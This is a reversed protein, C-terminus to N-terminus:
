FTANIGITFVRALPYLGEDVGFNTPNGGGAALEPDYGPYETFTLLNQGSLYVRAEQMFIKNAVVEPLTYGLTINAVRLFSADFVYFDSAVDALTSYGFVAKPINGTGPENASHWRGRVVGDQNLNGNLNAGVAYNYYADNGYSGNMIINLDFGKFIFTNTFGFTFDPNPNGVFDEDKNDVVGDENVDRFKRDGPEPNNDQPVHNEIEENTDFIGDTVRVYFQGLPKGVVTRTYKYDIFDGASGGLATVMNRNFSINFSSNWSFPATVNVTRLALEIGKNEVEGVNEITSTFGTTSPINVDLLLGDTISKYADATFEVRNKLLGINLGINASKSTEWTIASNAFKGTRTANVLQQNAGLVYGINVINATHAYDPIDNNGSVGYSARLKFDSIFEQGQMFSEDSMRWALALSPFTGYKNNDGFRSSGDRRLTATLLYRDKFAYNIRGFYSILAWQNRTETGSEVMGAANVYPAKDSPYQTGEVGIFRYDNKQASYGVIAKLSHDNFVKDYTLLNENLWNLKQSSYASGSPISPPPAGWRGTLSSLFAHTRNSVYDIGLSTRFSLDDLIEFELFTNGLIRAQDLNYQDAKAVAVPNDVAGLTGIGTINDRQALVNTYTGDEEYPGVLPTLRLAMGVLSGRFHGETSVQENETYSPNLRLGVKIRKNVNADINSRFSYRKMSSEIIIGRNEFYGGSIAYRVKENGGTASLNYNRLTGTRLVEDQWDTVEWTAQDLYMDPVRYKGREENPTNPDGGDRLWGNNRSEIHYEAFEEAGLVDLKNSITQWGSSIDLNFKTKGVNGTKTTIIVVGNAGRSGYIATASADKLVDISEIDNPNINSLPNGGGPINGTGGSGGSLPYGDIVYLPDNGATISSNGRVRITLGSSPSGTNQFVQVGALQGKMAQEFNTVPLDKIEKNSLSSTSGTLDRKEQTGYGVVVVERLASADVDMSIDYSSGDGIQVTVNAYGIYSVTLTSAEDPVSFSFSGDLDTITGFATGTVQVAAGILPEGTEADHVKGQLTRYKVIVEVPMIENDTKSATVAIVENIQRFNLHAQTTISSLIDGLTREEITVNPKDKLIEKNLAFRFETKAEIKKFVELIPRDQVSLEFEVEFVNKSKQGKLDSAFTMNCIFGILLFQGLSLKMLHILCNGIKSNM